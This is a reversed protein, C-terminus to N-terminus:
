LVRLFILLMSWSLIRTSSGKSSLSSTLLPKTSFDSSAYNCEPESCCCGKLLQDMLTCSDSMQLGSCVQIPDCLFLNGYASLSINACEGQCEAYQGFPSIPGLSTGTVSLATTTTTAQPYFFDVGVYCMIPPGPSSPNQLPHEPKLSDKLNCYTDDSTGASCCCM